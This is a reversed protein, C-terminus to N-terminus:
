QIAEVIRDYELGARRSVEGVADASPAAFLHFCTEDAPVFIPLLYCVDVGDVRMAEAAVRIRATIGPLRDRSERPFYAEM